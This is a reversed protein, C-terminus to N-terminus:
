LVSHTSLARRSDSPAVMSAIGKKVLLTGIGIELVGTILAGVWMHGNALRGILTALFLTLAAFMIVAVGFALAMWLVGRAARHLSDTTEGKALRVEDGVLRKSDQALRRILDPIGLDPDRRVPAAAM